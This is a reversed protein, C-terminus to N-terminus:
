IKHRFGCKQCIKYDVECEHKCDLCSEKGQSVRIEDQFDQNTFERAKQLWELVNEKNVVGILSSLKTTPIDAIEDRNVGLEVIFKQYIKNFLYIQSASYFTSHQGLYASWPAEADGLVVQYLKDKYLENIAEMSDLLLQRRKIENEKIHSHLFWAREGDKNNQIPNSM